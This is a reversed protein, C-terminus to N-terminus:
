SRSLQYFFRVKKPDTLRRIAMVQSVAFGEDLLELIPGNFGLEGSKREHTLKRAQNFTRFIADKWFMHTIQKSISLTDDILCKKWEDRKIRFLALTEKDEVDCNCIDIM